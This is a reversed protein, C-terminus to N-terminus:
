HMGVDISIQNFVAGYATNTIAAKSPIDVDECHGDVFLIGIKGFHRNRDVINPDRMLLTELNENTGGDNFVVWTNYALDRPNGDAAMLTDSTHPILSLNGRSRNHGSVGANNPTPADSWGVVAENFAFSTPIAPAAYGDAFNQLFDGAQISTAGGQIQEVNSPCTFIRMTNSNMYDQLSTVPTPKGLYTALAFPLPALVAGSKKYNPDAWYSYYQQGPDKMGAPSANPYSGVPPGHTWLYGCLPVRNKHEGAHMAMAQGIQRLNSLCQAMRAQERARNLAPLLISILLAIIGIVVLLEVLTFAKSRRM